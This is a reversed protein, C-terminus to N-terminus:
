NGKINQWVLHTSSTGTAVLARSIQDNPTATTSCKWANGDDQHGSLLLDQSLNTFSWLPLLM